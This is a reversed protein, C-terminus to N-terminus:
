GLGREITSWVMARPVFAPSESIVITLRQGAEDYHFTGAFGSKSIEGHDTEPLAVFMAISSRLQNVRSRDVNEFTRTDVAM